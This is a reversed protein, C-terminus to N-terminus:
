EETREVGFNSLYWVREHLYYLFMKTFMEAGGVSLGLLPDGSILWALCITDLTGIIRWTVTKAIHRKHSIQSKM